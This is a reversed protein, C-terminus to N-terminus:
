KALRLNDISGAIADFAANLDSVKQVDYFKDPTSACNQLLTSSGSTVEM